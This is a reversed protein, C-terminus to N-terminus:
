DVACAPELYSGDPPRELCAMVPLFADRGLMKGAARHAAVSAWREIFVFRNRAEIDQWSEVGGCGELTSVKGALEALASGLAAACGEAAQMIYHRVIAM